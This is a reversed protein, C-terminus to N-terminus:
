TACCKEFGTTLKMAPWVAGGPAPHPMGAGDNGAPLARRGLLHRREGLGADLDDLARGVDAVGDAVRQAALRASKTIIPSTGTGRSLRRTKARFSGKIAGLSAATWSVAELGVARRMTLSKLRWTAVTLPEPLWVALRTSSRDIKWIPMGTDPLFMNGDFMAPSGVHNVMRAFWSPKM